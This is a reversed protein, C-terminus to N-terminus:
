NCLLLAERYHVAKVSETKSIQLKKWEKHYSIDLRGVSPFLLPIIVDRATKSLVHYEQSAFCNGLNLLQWAGSPSFGDTSSGKKLKCLLFFARKWISFRSKRREKGEWSLSIYIVGNWDEPQYSISLMLTIEYLPQKFSVLPSSFWIEQRLISNIVLRISSCVFWIWKSPM